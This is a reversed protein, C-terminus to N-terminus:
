FVLDSKKIIQWKMIKKYILFSLGLAVL